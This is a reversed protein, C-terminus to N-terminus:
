KKSDSSDALIKNLEAIVQENDKFHIFKMGIDKAGEGYRPQDDIFVCSEASVNLRDLIVQFAEPRPKIFGTEYSLAIQDFLAIQQRTFMRELWNAGANSLMGIKYDNKLTDIYNFLPENPANGEISDIAIQPDVHALYSVEKIFDEYSKLGADNQKNLDSAQQMLSADHAFYKSKFPLWGDTALVGFCDFIVAKVINSTM